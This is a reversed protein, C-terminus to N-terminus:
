LKSAGSNKYRFIGLGQAKYRGRCLQSEGIASLYFVYTQPRFIVCHDAVYEKEISCFQISRVLMDSGEHQVM